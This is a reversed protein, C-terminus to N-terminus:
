KCSAPVEFFIEIESWSKGHHFGKCVTEFGKWASAVGFDLVDLKGKAKLLDGQIEYTFPLEKSVANMTVLVGLTSAEVKTIKVDIKGADKEFAKFFKNITNNNRITAMAPPWKAGKNNMDASTDISFADISLTANLLKENPFNSTSKKFTNKTVVYSKDPAGFFTFDYKLGDSCQGAYLANSLLTAGLLAVLKKNM